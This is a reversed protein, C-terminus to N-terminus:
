KISSSEQRGIVVSAVARGGRASGLHTYKLQELSGEVADSVRKSKRPFILCSSAFTCRSTYVKM